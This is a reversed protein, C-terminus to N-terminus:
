RMELKMFKGSFFNLYFSFPLVLSGQKYFIIGVWINNLICFVYGWQLFWISSNTHSEGDSTKLISPGGPHRKTLWTKWVTRKRIWNLSRGLNQNECWSGREAQIKENRFALLKLLTKGEQTQTQVVLSLSVFAGFPYCWSPSETGLAGKLKAEAPTEGAVRPPVSIWGFLWCAGGNLVSNM